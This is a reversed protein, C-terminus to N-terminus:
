NEQLLSFYSGQFFFTSFTDRLSRMIGTEEGYYEQPNTYQAAHIKCSSLHYIILDEPHIQMLSLM